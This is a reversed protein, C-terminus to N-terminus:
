FGVKELLIKQQRLMKILSEEDPHDWGLLHLFGHAMLWALEITLSHQQQQAQRQATEVSIIIDGLYLPESEEQLKFPTEVELAAFSLVDTPQNKSRFKSNLNKIEVDDTLRLSLEYLSAQPLNPRLFNFWQECWIQWNEEFVPCEEELNPFFLDEFFLEIKLKNKGM